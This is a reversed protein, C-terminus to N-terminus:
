SLGVVQQFVNDYGKITFSVEVALSNTDESALVDVNSISVRPDWIEINDKLENAIMEALDENINEFLIDKLRSGFAPRMIRTGRATQLINVISTKVADVDTVINFNGKANLGIDYKIDSWKAM